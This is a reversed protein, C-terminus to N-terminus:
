SAAAATEELRRKSSVLTQKMRGLQSQLTQVTDVLNKLKTYPLPTSSSAASFGDRNSTGSGAHPSSSRWSFQATTEEQEPSTSSPESKSVPATLTRSGPDPGQAGGFKAASGATPSAEGEEKEEGEELSRGDGRAMQGAGESRKARDEEDDHEKAKAVERVIRAEENRVTELAGRYEEFVRRYRQSLKSWDNPNRVDLWPEATSIAGAGVGHRSPTQSSTAATPAAAAAAAVMGSSHQRPARAPSPSRSSDTASSSTYYRPNSIKAVEGSTRRKKAAPVEAVSSSTKKAADLSSSSATKASSSSPQEASRPATPRGRRQQAEDGSSSDSYDVSSKAPVTRVKVKNSLTSPAPSSLKAGSSRPLPSSSSSPSALAVSSPAAKKISPSSPLASSSSSSSSLSALQQQKSPSIHSGKVTDATKKTEEKEQVKKSRQAEERQAALKAKEVQREKEARSSSAASGTKTGKGKAAKRLRNMTTNTSKKSASPREDDSNSSSRALSADRSRHISEQSSTISPVNRLAASSAKAPSVSTSSRAKRGTGDDDSSLESSTAGGGPLSSSPPRRGREVATDSEKNGNQKVSLLMAFEKSKEDLGLRRFAEEALTCVRLREKVTYDPWEAIVVHRYTSDTLAYVAGPGSATGSSSAVTPGGSSTKGNHTEPLPHAFQKLPGLVAAETSKLQAVLDRRPLPGKALLQILRRKLTPPAAETSSPKPTRSAAAAPGPSSTPTVAASHVASSRALSSKLAAPRTGPTAAASLSPSGPQSGANSDAPTGARSQWGPALAGMRPSSTPSSQALSKARLKLSSTPGSGKSTKKSTVPASDLLVTRHESKRAEEAERREKLRSTFSASSGPTPRVALKDHLSGLPTLTAQSSSTADSLAFLVHPSADTSRQLAHRADGVNLHADDAKASWSLSIARSHGSDEELLQQLVEASLRLHIAAPPGDQQQEKQQKQQQAESSDGEVLYTRAADLLSM